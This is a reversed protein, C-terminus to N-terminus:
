ELPSHSLLRPPEFLPQVFAWVYCRAPDSSDELYTGRLIRNRPEVIAMRGDDVLEPVRRRVDSILKRRNGPKMM